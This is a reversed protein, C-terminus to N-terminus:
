IPTSCWIPVNTIQGHVILCEILSFNKWHAQYKMDHLCKIVSCMKKSITDLMAQKHLHLLQNGLLFIQFFFQHHLVGSYHIAIVLLISPLFNLIPNSWLLLFDSGQPQLNVIKTLINILYLYYACKTCDNCIKKHFLQVKLLLSTLKVKITSICQVQVPHMQNNELLKQAWFSIQLLQNQLFPM